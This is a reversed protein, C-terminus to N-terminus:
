VDLVYGPEPIIVDVKFNRVFNKIEALKTRRLDRQIHTLALRQVKQEEAMKVLEEIKGHGRSDFGFSYSDHVLLSCSQYLQRTHENFNGDGSYAYKRGGYIVAIAYNKVPHSSVAFEMAANSLIRSRDTFVEEFTLEYHIHSLVGLYAYDIMELLTQKTGEACLVLLPKKREDEALRVLVSPLGFYHDAHRHSIYIADLYEPDPHSKWLAHPVAYGCDILLRFGEWELIQSNNPLSEDFAEGVGVFEVKMEITRDSSSQKAPEANSLRCEGTSNEGRRM